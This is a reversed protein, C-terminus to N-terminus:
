PAPAADPASEEGTQQASRLAEYIVAPDFTAVVPDTVLEAREMEGSMVVSFYEDRVADVAETVNLPRRLIIHYGYESEVVDSYEGEELARAAADFAEVMTGHTFTYGEPYRAHGPDQSYEDALRRFLEIPDSSDRLQWLLDEAKQRADPDDNKLLIHDATIYGAGVAYARLVDDSAYLETGPTTYAEYIRQYLYSGRSLREYGEESIGLKYLEARYGEEGGFQEVYAAHQASLADLDEQKLEIGCRASLNELLLQQKISALVDEAIFDRLTKTGDIEDDWKQSVDLGYYSMLSMCENGLLFTYFEAPAGNGDLTAIVKDPAVGMAELTIGNELQSPTFEPKEPSFHWVLAGAAAGVAIALLAALIRDKWM